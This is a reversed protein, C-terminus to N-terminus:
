NRTYLESDLIVDMIVSSTHVHKNPRCASPHRRTRSNRVVNFVWQYGEATTHKPDPQQRKPVNKREMRM